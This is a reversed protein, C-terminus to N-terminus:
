SDFLYMSKPTLTGLLYNLLANIPAVCMIVRTPATFLGQTSLLTLIHVTSLSLSIGQSQFYRRSISNFAYAPLGLVSFKLYIAALRAVEPEQKLGLLIAESSFWILTIPKPPIFTLSACAILYSHCVILCAAM